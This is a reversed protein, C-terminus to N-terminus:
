ERHKTTGSVRGIRCSAADSTCSSYGNTPGCRGFGQEEGRSGLGGKISQIEMARLQDAEEAEMGEYRCVVVTDENELEFHVLNCCCFGACQPFLSQLIGLFVGLGHQHM